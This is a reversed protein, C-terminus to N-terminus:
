PQSPSAIPTVNNPGIGAAGGSVTFTPLPAMTSPGFGGFGGGYPFGAIAQGMKGYGIIAINM